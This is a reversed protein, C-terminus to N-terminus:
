WFESRDRELWHAPSEHTRFPPIELPLARSSGVHRLAASSACAFVTRSLGSVVAVVRGALLQRSTATVHIGQPPASAIAQGGSFASPFAGPQAGGWINM